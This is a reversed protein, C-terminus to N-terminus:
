LGPWAQGPNYAQGFTAGTGSGAYRLTRLDAGGMALDARLLVPQADQETTACSALLLAAAGTLTFVRRSRNFEM